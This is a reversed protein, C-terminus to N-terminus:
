LMPLFQWKSLTPSEAEGDEQDEEGLWITAGESLTVKVSMEDSHVFQHISEGDPYTVEVRVVPM